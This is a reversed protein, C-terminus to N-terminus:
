MLALFFCWILVSLVRGDHRNCLIPTDGRKKGGRMPKKNNGGFTETGSGGSSGTGLVTCFYM